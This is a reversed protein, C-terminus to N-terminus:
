KCNRGLAEANYAGAASRVTLDANMMFWAMSTMVYERIMRSMPEALSLRRRKEHNVTDFAANLGLIILFASITM